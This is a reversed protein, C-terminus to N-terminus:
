PESRQSAPATFFAILPCKGDPPVIRRSHLGLYDCSHYHRASHLESYVGAFRLHPTSLSAPDIFFLALVPPVWLLHKGRVLAVIRRENRPLPALEEQLRAKGDDTAYRIAFLPAGLLRTGELPNDAVEDRWPSIRGYDVMSLCLPRLGRVFVWAKSRDMALIEDATMLRRGLERSSVNIGDAEARYSYDQRRITSEALMDSVHKARALSNLGAYIKIDCYSEIASAAERGYKRVLGDFSQIYLDASIKLGRMTEMDSALDAFRFNLAEEGVIHIPHDAPYRKAAELLSHTLLSVVPAFDRAHSLPAMVFVVIQRLRMDAINHSATRGYGAMRGGQNFTLLRQTAGELFSSANEPNDQFLRLLGGSEAHLFAAIPDDPMLRLLEHRLFVLRKQFSVPDNLLAFVDSPTCRAPDVLAQSLIALAICRRSGNIFYVNANEGNKNEPLHLNALDFALKIADQRFADQAHAADLVAQYLNLPTDGCLEKHAGAPNICWVEINRDRLARVLMPALECKVDPIFLSKGLRAQHLISGIVYNVTKGVGPPMEILSFPTRPPAFAPALEEFLGLFNGSAADNMGRAVLEEWSAQRAAGHDASAQAARELNRRLSYDRVMGIIAGLGALAAVALCLWSLPSAGLHWAAVGFLGSTMAMRNIPGSRPHIPVSM